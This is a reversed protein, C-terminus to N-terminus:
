QHVLESSLSVVQFCTTKESFISKFDFESKIDIVGAESCFTDVEQFKTKHNTSTVLLV